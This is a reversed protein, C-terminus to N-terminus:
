EVSSRAVQNRALEELEEKTLPPLVQVTYAPVLKSEYYEDGKPNKRKIMIHMQREQISQLLIHEVHWEVGFPVARSITGLVSNGTQFLESQFERKTVDNPTIIVRILKLAEDELAKIKDVKSQTSSQTQTETEPTDLEDIVGDLNTDGSEYRTILELLKAKSINGKFPIGYETAKAKLEDLSLETM